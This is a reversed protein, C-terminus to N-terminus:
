LYNRGYRTIFDEKTKKYFKLWLKEALKKTKLDFTKDFHIGEDSGNHHEYCLYIWCGDKESNNRNRGEFIHHQHLNYTSDCKYCKRENSIISKM